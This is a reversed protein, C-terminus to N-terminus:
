SRSVSWCLAAILWVWLNVTPWVTTNQARPPHVLRPGVIKGHHCDSAWPHCDGAWPHRRTVQKEDRVSTTNCQLCILQEARANYECAMEGLAKVAQADTMLRALRRYRDARCLLEEPDDHIMIVGRSTSLGPYRPNGRHTRASRYTLGWSAESYDPWAMFPRLRWTRLLRKQRDWRNLIRALGNQIFVTRGARNHDSRDEVPYPQLSGPDTTNIRDALTCITQASDMTM